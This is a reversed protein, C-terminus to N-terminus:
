SFSNPDLESARHREDPRDTVHVFVVPARNHEAVLRVDHLEVIRV